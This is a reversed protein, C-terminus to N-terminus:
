GASACCHSKSSSMWIILCLFHKRMIVIWSKISTASFYGLFLFCRQYIADNRLCISCGWVSFAFCWYTSLSLSIWFCFAKNSALISCNFYVSSFCIFISQYKLLLFFFSSSSSSSSWLKRRDNDFCWVGPKLSERPGFAFVCCVINSIM